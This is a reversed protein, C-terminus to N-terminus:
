AVSESRHVMRSPPADDFSTQALGDAYRAPAFHSVSSRRPSRWGPGSFCPCRLPGAPGYSIISTMGPLWQPLGEGPSNPLDGKQCPSTPGLVFIDPEPCTDTRSASMAQAPAPLVTANGDQGRRRKAVISYTMSIVSCVDLHRSNMCLTTTNNRCCVDKFYRCILWNRSPM